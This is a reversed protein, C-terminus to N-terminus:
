RENKTKTSSKEQESNQRASALGTEIQDRAVARDATQEAQNTQDPARLQKIFQGQPLLLTQLTHDSNQLHTTNQLLQNQKQTM